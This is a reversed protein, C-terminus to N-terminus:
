KFRLSTANIIMDFDPLKGWDLIKLNKFLIKLNEAKSQTRNSITISSVKMKNLAHLYSPVVGGAGLIFVNKGM